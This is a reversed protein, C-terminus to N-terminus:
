FTTKSFTTKSFTTNGLYLQAVQNEPHLTECVLNNVDVKGYKPLLVNYLIEGNYTVKKVQDSFDLFRYAPVMQGEFELRHDKSMITKQSPCNRNLSNKEFSILYKDLTTTQTIYLIPEGRITHKNPDLLEITIIGQDTKIPTGAPFCIDSILPAPTPAPKPASSHAVATFQLTNSIGPPLNDQIWTKGNDNSYAIQGIFTVDDINIGGVAVWNGHKDSSVSTVLSYNYRESRMMSGNFLGVPLSVLTWTQGNTSYALQGNSNVGDLSNYGGAVWNGQTDSAVFCNGGGFLGIPLSLATWTQGNTSYALQGNFNVGDLSNCGGAVWNGHTDSAVSFCSGGGFLGTPLSLATWTQGNTSYALQGNFNVGDLSNYGGAVWNGHTDSAVSFCDGRSFLGPPLNVATWTQGNSSYALQGIRDPNDNIDVIKSGGAVWNGKTDSAVTNINSYKASFTFLGPPLSSPTWHLGDKSYAIQGPLIIGGGTGTQSFGFGYGGSVWNGKGDSAICNTFANSITNLSWSQGNTSNLNNGIVNQQSNYAVTIFTGM